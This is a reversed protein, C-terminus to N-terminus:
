CNGSVGWEKLMAWALDPRRAGWFLDWVNTWSGLPRLFSDAAKAQDMATDMQLDWVRIDALFLCVRPSAGAELYRKFLFYQAPMGDWIKLAMNHIGRDELRGALVGATSDGLLLVPKSLDMRGAAMKKVYGWTVAIGGYFDPRMRDYVTVATELTVIVLCAALLAKPFKSNLIFLSRHNKVM